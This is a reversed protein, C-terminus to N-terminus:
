RSPSRLQTQRFILSTDGITIRDGDCLDHEVALLGNVRTGNTSGLDRLVAHEQSGVVRFHTSAHPISLTPDDFELVDRAPDTAGRTGSRGLVLGDTVPLPGVVTGDEADIEVLWACLDPRHHAQTVITRAM